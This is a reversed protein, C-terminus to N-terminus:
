NFYVSGDSELTIVGQNETFDRSQGVNLDVNGATTAAASVDVLGNDQRLVTITASLPLNQLKVSEGIALQRQDTVGLVEYTLVAGTENSLNVTVRGSAPTFRAIAVNVQEPLPPTTVDPAVQALAPLSVSMLSGSVLLAAFTLKMHNEGLCLPMYNLILTGATGDIM